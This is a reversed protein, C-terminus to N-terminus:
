SDYGVLEHIEERESVPRFERTLNRLTVNTSNHISAVDFYGEGECYLLQGCHMWSTDAVPIAVCQDPYPTVFSACVQSSKSGPSGSAGPNGVPGAPVLLPFSHNM